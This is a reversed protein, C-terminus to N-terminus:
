ELKWARTKVEKGNWELKKNNHNPICVCNNETLAFHIISVCLHYVKHLETSCSLHINSQFALLFFLYVCESVRRYQRLGCVPSFSVVEKHPSLSFVTPRQVIWVAPTNKLLVFICELLSCHFASLALANKPHLFWKRSRWTFTPNMRVDFRFSYSAKTMFVRILSFVCFIDLQIKIKIKKAIM